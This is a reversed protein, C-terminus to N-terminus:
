LDASATYWFYIFAGGTAGVTSYSYMGAAGGWTNSPGGGYEPVMTLGSVNDFSANNYAMTPLTRMTVPFTQYFLLLNGAANYGYNYAFGTYYYRRCQQAEEAVSRMEPPPPNLNIGTAVGPTVRIDAAGVYCSQGATLATNCYFVVQYGNAANASVAFTYSETCWTGTACPTLSVTLDTTAATWNDTATPYFTQLQPTVTSGSGQYFQFQVTVTQGAMPAADFSEIRQYIYTNTNGTAGACGIVYLPYGLPTATATTEGQSCSGTAGPQGVVWGDATYANTPLSSIGRQWITFTGNRFKNVYGSAYLQGTQAATFNQALNTEAIVGTNAPVTVTYNSAGANASAVATTGTSSGPLTLNSITVTGANNNSINSGSYSWPTNVTCFLASTSSCAGSLNVGTGAVVTASTFGGGGSVAAVIEPHFVLIAYTGASANTSLVRGIVQNASPYTAGADTCDGGVSASIQVYDGATTGGDFVCTAQGSVAIQANSTTGAGGVVVGVAGSTDTTATIVATSPAGTLKALKHVTTGTSSANAIETLVSQSTVDIPESSSVITGNDTLASTALASTTNGKYIVNSTLTTLGTGGHAVGLTGSVTSTTLAITFGSGTAGGTLTGTSTINGQTTAPITTSCSPVGSASTIIVGSNCTTIAAVTAGSSSQALLDNAAGSIITTTGVTLSSATATISCTSGLTCSTSNITITPSLMGLVGGNDSLVDSPTGGTITTTGVVVASAATTITCSAGLVCLTGNITESANTLNANGITGTVNSGNTGLNLGTLASQNMPAPFGGGSGTGCVQNAGFTGTCQANAAGHCLTLLVAGLLWKLVPRMNM